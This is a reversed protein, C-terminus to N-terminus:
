LAEIGFESADIESETWQAATEPNLELIEHFYKYDTSPFQVFSATRHTSLPRSILEFSAPGADQKNLFGSMQVAWVTAGGVVVPMAEFDFLDRDNPTNTENYSTDGDPATEDVNEFHNASPTAVDFQSAFGDGDPLLADIRSDGLFDNFPAPGDINLVYVDDIWTDNTLGNGNFSIGQAEGVGSGLTDISSENIITAGDLHVEITGDPSNGIKVKFEIYYWTDTSVLGGASIGIETSGSRTIRIAGGTNMQLTVHNVGHGAISLINRNAVLTGTKWAFGVVITEHGPFGKRVDNTFNDLNFAATGRRGGTPDVDVGGERDDWFKHIDATPYVEGCGDLFLLSM